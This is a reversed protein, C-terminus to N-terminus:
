RDLVTVVEVHHTQPFLDFVESSGHRYGHAALLSVDRAMAVPDCSVLVVREAGTAALVDAGDRGLGSRAPDAVALRVPTPRWQEFMTRVVRGTAINLRADACASPSGEVVIAERMPLTAAFLGIGGYADLVPGDADLLEGSARRVADVLLEAAEVGSQFFSSATVRLSVGAVEESLAADAGVVVDDADCHVVANPADPMVTAVGTAVSARVTVEDAGQVRLTAIVRNVSAHAVPCETIPVVRHSQAARLGVRGDPLVALRVTTRYGFPSVSGGVVVSADPLRATRRLADRVIDAKHHLQRGVHQWGCGGCGNAVEPCVPEVRDSSPTLVQVITARLFDKKETVVRAAAVDGPVAGEVFVVRGDAARAIADGGAAWRDPSLELTDTM